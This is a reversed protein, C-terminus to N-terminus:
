ACTDINLASADDRAHVFHRNLDSPQALPVAAELRDAADVEFDPTALHEAQESGVSGSFGCRDFNQLPVALAGGALNPHEPHVGPLTRTGKARPHSNDQLAGPQIAMDLDALGERVECGHVRMWAVDVLHDRQGAKLALLVRHGARQGAPLHAPEIQRQRQDAIGLQDEEVFGGGPEVGRGTAVGPLRDVRELCKTLGHQQGGMIEVLRLSEGIAHGDDLISSDDDLSCRAGKARRGAACGVPDGVLVPVALDCDM